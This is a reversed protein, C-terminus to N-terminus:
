SGEQSFNEDNLASVIREDGSEIEELFSGLASDLETNTGIYLNSNKIRKRIKESNTFQV